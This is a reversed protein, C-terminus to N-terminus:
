RNILLAVVIGRQTIDATTTEKKGTKSPKVDKKEIHEIKQEMWHIKMLPGANANANPVNPDNPGSASVATATLSVLFCVLLLIAITRKIQSKM